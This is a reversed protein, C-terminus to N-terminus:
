VKGEVARTAEARPGWGYAANVVYVAYAAYAAGTCCIRAGLRVYEPERLVLIQDQSGLWMRCIGWMCCINCIRVRHLM